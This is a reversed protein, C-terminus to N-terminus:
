ICGTIQKLVNRHRFLWWNSSCDYHTDGSRRFWYRYRLEKRHEM